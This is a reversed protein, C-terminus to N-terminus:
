KAASQKALGIIKKNPFSQWLNWCSFDHCEWPKKSQPFIKQCHEWFVKQEIWWNKTDLSQTCIISMLQNRFTLGDLSDFFSAIVIKPWIPTDSNTFDPLLSCFGIETQLWVRQNTAPPFVFLVAISHQLCNRENSQM